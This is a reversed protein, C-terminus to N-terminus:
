LNIKFLAVEGLSPYTASGRESRRMRYDFFDKAFHPYKAVMEELQKDMRSAWDREAKQIDLFVGLVFPSLALMGVIILGFLGFSDFTPSKLFLRCAVIIIGGFVVPCWVKLINMPSFTIAIAHWEAVAAGWREKRSLNKTRDVSEKSKESSM